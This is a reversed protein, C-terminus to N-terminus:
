VNLLFVDFGLFRDVEGSKIQYDLDALHELKSLLEDFSYNYSNQLSHWIVNPNVKLIRAIEGQNNGQKSLVKSQYMLRYQNALIIMLVIPEQKMLKLNELISFAKKIDKKIVSNTFEFIDDDYNISTADIVDDDTIVKDDIKYIKLKTIEQYILDYNNLCSKMIYNIGFNTIKYNDMKFESLVKSHLERDNLEVIQHVNFDKRFKKTIKKREDLKKDTVFVLTTDPNPNDLYNFLKDLEKSDTKKSSFFNANKIVLYKQEKFLSLYGAEEIVDSISCEDLDMRVINIGSSVIENIKEENLIRSSGSILHINMM